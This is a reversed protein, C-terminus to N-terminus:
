AHRDGYCDNLFVTNSAQKIYVFSQLYDWHSYHLLPTTSYQTQALSFHKFLLKIIRTFLYNEKFMFISMYYSKNLRKFLNRYRENAGTCNKGNSWCEMVGTFWKAIQM